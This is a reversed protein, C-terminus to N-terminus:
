EDLSFEIWFFSGKGPVSKVGISGGHAEIFAKCISLGLGTGGVNRTQSGDVQYFADFIKEQDEEPIGIGYDKIGIRLYRREEAGFFTFFKDGPDNSEYLRKEITVILDIKGGVDSFKIANTMLNRIIQFIKTYDAMLWIQDSEPDFYRGIELNRQKIQVALNGVVDDLLETFELKKKDLRVAGSEIKSIDLIERILHLLENANNLIKELGEEIEDDLDDELQLFEAYGIISTLPTKLEHSITALLNSKVKDAEMLADNAATLAENKEKLERYANESMELHIHNTIFVRYSLRLQIKFFDLLVAKVEKPDHECYFHCHGKLFSEVHLPFHDIVQDQDFSESQYYTQDDLDQILMSLKFVQEFHKLMVEIQGPKIIQDLAVQDIDLYDDM